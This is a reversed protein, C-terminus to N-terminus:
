LYEEISSLNFKYLNPITQDSREIRSPIEEERYFFDRQIAIVEKKEDISVEMFPGFGNNSGKTCSGKNFFLKNSNNNLFKILPKTLISFKKDQILYPTPFRIPSLVHENFQDSLVQQINLHPLQIIAGLWRLDTLRQPSCFHTFKNFFVPLEVSKKPDIKILLASGVQSSTSAGEYAASKGWMIDANKTVYFGRGQSYYLGILQAIQRRKTTTSRPAFFNNLRIFMPITYPNYFKYSFLINSDRKSQIQNYTYEINQVKSVIKISPPEHPFILHFKLSVAVLIKNHYAFFRCTQIPTSQTNPLVNMNDKRFFTSFPMTTELFDTQQIKFHDCHLKINNIPLTNKTYDMYAAKSVLFDHSEKFFLYPFDESIKYQNATSIKQLIDYNNPIHAIHIFHNSSHYINMVPTHPLKFYHASGNPKKAVFSFSCIPIEESEDLFIKEPLITILPIKDTLPRHFTAQYVKTKNRVSCFSNITLQINAMEPRTMTHALQSFVISNNLYLVNNKETLQTVSFRLHQTKNDIIFPEPLVLKNNQKEADKSLSAAVTSLAAEQVSSQNPFACASLVLFICFRIFM